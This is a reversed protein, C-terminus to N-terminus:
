ARDSITPLGTIPDALRGLFLVLGTDIDRILFLFPRDARFVSPPAVLAKEKMVVATAAAAVTGEESVEVKAQHAVKSIFLGQSGTMGSLDAQPSFPARMGMSVLAGELDFASTATFAPLWVAVQQLDLVSLWSELLEPTLAAELGALQEGSKPLLLVMAAQGGAYPLELVQLEDLECYRFLGDQHMLLADVETGDVRYFPAPTTSELPFSVQWSGRFYVTNTLVLRSESDLARPALLERIYGATHKEV